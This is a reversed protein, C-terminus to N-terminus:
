AQHLPACNDTTSHWSSGTVGYWPLPHPLGLTTSPHMSTVWRISPGSPLVQEACVGGQSPSYNVQSALLKGLKTGQHRLISLIKVLSAAM